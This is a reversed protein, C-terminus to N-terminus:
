LLQLIFRYRHAFLLAAFAVFALFTYGPMIICGTRRSTVYFVIVVGVYLTVLSKVSKKTINLYSIVLM